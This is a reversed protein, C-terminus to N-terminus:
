DAKSNKHIRYIRDKSLLKDRMIPVSKPAQVGLIISSKDIRSVSIVINDGVLVEEHEHLKLALM